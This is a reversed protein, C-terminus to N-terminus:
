VLKSSANQKFYKQHVGLEPVPDKVESLIVIM